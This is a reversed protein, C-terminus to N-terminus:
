PSCCYDKKLSPERKRDINQNEMLWDTSTDARM